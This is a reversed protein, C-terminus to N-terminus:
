PTKDMRHEYAVLVLNRVENCAAIKADRWTMLGPHPDHDLQWVTRSAIVIADLADAETPYKIRLEELSPM